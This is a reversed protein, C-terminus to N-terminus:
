SNCMETNRSENKIKKFLFSYQTMTFLVSILKLLQLPRRMFAHIFKNTFGTANFLVDAFQDISSERLRVITQKMYWLLSDTVQDVNEVTERNFLLDRLCNPEPLEDIGFFSSVTQEEVIIRHADLENDTWDSASKSNKILYSM